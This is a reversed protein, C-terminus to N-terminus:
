WRSAPPLVFTGQLSSPACTWYDDCGAEHSLGTQRQWWHNLGQLLCIYVTHLPFCAYLPCLVSVKWEDGLADAEVEQAMRKEYFIRLKKDDEVEFLKQTGNQPYAVNLKM